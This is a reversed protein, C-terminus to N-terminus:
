AEAAADDDELRKVLVEKKGDVSLGRAALEARLDDNTWSAYDIDDEDGDEEVEASEIVAGKEDHSDIWAQRIEPIHWRPDHSFPGTEPNIMVVLDKLDEQTVRM